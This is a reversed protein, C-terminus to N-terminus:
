LAIALGVLAAPPIERCQQFLYVQQSGARVASRQQRSQDLSRQCVFLAHPQASLDPRQPCSLGESSSLIPVRAFCSLLRCAASSSKLSCPVAAIELLRIASCQPILLPLRWYWKAFLRVIMKASNWCAM